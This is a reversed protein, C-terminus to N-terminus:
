TLNNVYWRMALQIGEAIPYEPAYGLAQQIKAISAQSHRVDGARFERYVAPKGYNISNELLAVQIAAYLDNLTTRDGVAVNYVQNKAEEPATAALINAQVTNEIFCFDRSTEGDGNIFVDDGAIMSATWKPIVAAYAGNPDQRQGFVNFYRLGIAKFAYSRAFVDAYLENVYKTVAYPSLP